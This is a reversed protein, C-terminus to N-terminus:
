EGIPKDMLWWPTKMLKAGDEKSCFQHMSDNIFYEWFSREYDKDFIKFAGKKEQEKLFERYADLPEVGAQQFIIRGGYKEYLSKNIKWSKVFHQALEMAKTKEDVEKNTKLINELTQLRSTKETREQETLSKSKLEELLNDRDKEFKAHWQKKMGEAKEEIKQVLANLEDETPEIKNEKAYQELLAGFILEKLNDKDKISIRNGLVVAITDKDPAVATSQKKCSLAPIVVAAALAISILIRKM